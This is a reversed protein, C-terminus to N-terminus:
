AAGERSFEDVIKSFDATVVEDVADPADPYAQDFALVLIKCLAMLVPHAAWSAQEFLPKSEEELILRAAAQRMNFLDALVATQEGKTSMFEAFKKVPEPLEGDDGRPPLFGSEIYAEDTIRQGEELLSKVSGQDELPVLAMTDLQKGLASMIADMKHLFHKAAEREEISRTSDDFIEKVRNLTGKLQSLSDLIEQEISTDDDNQTM